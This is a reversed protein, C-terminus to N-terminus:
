YRAGPVKYGPLYSGLIQQQTPVGLARDLGQYDFSPTSLIAKGLVSNTDHPLAAAIQGLSYGGPTQGYMAYMQMQALRSAAAEYASNRASTANAVVNAYNGAGQGIADLLQNMTDYSAKDYGQQLQTNGSGLAGSNSIGRGSLNYALDGQQQSLQQNLQARASLPNATGADVTAQDIDSAYPALSAPMQSRLDWGGRIVMQRIQDALSSRASGVQASFAQDANQYMPDGQLESLYANPDVQPTLDGGFDFGSFGSSPVAPTSGSPVSSSGGLSPVAPLFTSRGTDYAGGSASPVLKAKPVTPLKPLAYTAM